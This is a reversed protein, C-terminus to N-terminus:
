RRHRRLLDRLSVPTSNELFTKPFFALNHGMCCLDQVCDETGSFASEVVKGYFPYQGIKLDGKMYTRDQRETVVKVITPAESWIPTAIFHIGFPKTRGSRFKDGERRDSSVRFALNHDKIRIMQSGVCPKSFVDSSRDVPTKTGPVWPSKYLTFGSFLAKMAM